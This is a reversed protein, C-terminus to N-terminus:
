HPHDHDHDHEAEPKGPTEHMMEEHSQSAVKALEQYQEPTMGPLKQLFAVVNWLLEDGHTPGWAPMGTLKVGHKVIWFQQAPARQTGRAFEPARPYLGQAIETAAMGPALHCQSCMEAYEAAGAAIRGADGLDNPVQIRAARAAISRDRASQLLWYVPKTHPADAAVNFVGAFLLIAGLGIGVVAVAALTLAVIWHSKLSM